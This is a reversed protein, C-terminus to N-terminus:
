SEPSLIEDFIMETLETMEERHWICCALLKQRVGSHGLHFLNDRILGYFPNNANMRYINAVNSDWFPPYEFM